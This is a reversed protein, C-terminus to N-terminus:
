KFVKLVKELGEVFTDIESKTTYIYFSARATPGCELFDHLPQACHFGVRICVNDEDLIQAVDHPHVGQVTFAIVGGRKLADTSGTIRVGSIRSLAKLAYSTVEIEHQRVDRMGISSLYDVAAGLGIAGAINPTGAEFKHPLDHFITQDLHVEKIMDGGFNFPPMSELIERKAWLIGMGTPGLMKHSSLGVFDVGWKGVDIPFHPVAQAADILVLCDPNLRKVIKTIEAVPTITGVVNSAATLALLKTKRTILTDLDKLNLQGEKDVNWIKLRTGRHISLQQWPVFNSHHEMITTVIEDGPKCQNLAWSYYVLSISEDTSKTFIVEGVDKAGIFLGIRKRADEYAATARESIKYLGRFVNAGYERYYGDMADLVYQPKLSTATSDLYVLPKGDIKRQLIPFDKRIKAVDIM